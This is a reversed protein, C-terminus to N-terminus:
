HVSRRLLFTLQTNIVIHSSLQAKHVLSTEDITNPDLYYTPVDFNFRDTTMTLLAVTTKMMSITKMAGRLIWALLLPLLM